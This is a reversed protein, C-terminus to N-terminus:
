TLKSKRVTGGILAGTLSFLTQILVAWIPTQAKSMAVM